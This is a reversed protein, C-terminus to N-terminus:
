SEGTPLAFGEADDYTGMEALVTDCSGTTVDCGLLRLPGSGDAADTAIVAVTTADVWAYPEFFGPLDLTIRDDTRTDYVLGDDDSGALYAADPSLLFSSADEVAFADRTEDRAPGVGVETAGDQGTTTFAIQGGAADAVDNGGTVGRDVTRREGTALDIAVADTGDRVYLDEGDLAYLHGAAVNDLGKPTILSVRYDDLEGTAQDFAVVHPSDADLWAAVPGTPDSVLRLEEDPTLGVQEVRGEVVSWVRGRGDATVYGSSTEVYARVPHGVDITRDGDHIVTGVAYSGAVPADAGGGPAAVDPATSETGGGVASLSVATVVALAAVVAASGAAAGAYQRRRRRRGATRVADLDPVAFDPATARDHLLSQLTETM